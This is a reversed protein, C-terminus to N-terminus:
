GAVTILVVSPVVLAVTWIVRKNLAEERFVALGLLLAFVPSCAVIPTVVILKGTSLATNLSLVSLAYVAGTLVFWKFGPNRVVEPDRGGRTVALAVITSVTYGVLGVFFPSALSEMGLKAFLNALARIFAAGVPLLLAWLPWDRRGNGHWSLLMVGVVIGVTGALLAPSLHEGLILVGMTVGFLPSTGALTSTVTPGLMKTGAMALRASLFPRILGVAAFLVVVPALWYHAEIFFPSFLWYLGASTAIEILAGTGPDITRLGLRSFQAGLAFLFASNLALLAPWIASGGFDPM